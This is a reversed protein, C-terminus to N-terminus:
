RCCSIASRRRSDVPDPLVVGHRHRADHVAPQLRRLHRSRGAPTALELRILTAAAGGIFFFLTIGAFYLIAVRKHDTTFFWSRLRNDATLYNTAAITTDTMTRAKRRRRAIQHLRGAPGARGREGQRRYSPMVPEYGAAIQARPLLISDRIYNDDAIVVEGSQLPVPRGYLGELPPARVASGAAHCGGCGLQRFLDAGESALTGTM